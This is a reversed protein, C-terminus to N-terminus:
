KGCLCTMSIHIIVINAVLLMRTFALKHSQYEYYAKVHSFNNNEISIHSVTNLTNMSGRIFKNM